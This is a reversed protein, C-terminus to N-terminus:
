YKYVALNKKMKEMLEALQTIEDQSFGEFAIKNIDNIAIKVENLTERGKDTLYVRSVRKDIADKETYVFGSNQLRDVMKSITAPALNMIEYLEKKTKGDEKMLLFLLRPQGRYVGLTKFKQRVLDHHLRVTDHFIDDLRDVSM